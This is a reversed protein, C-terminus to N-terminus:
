KATKFSKSMRYIVMSLRPKVHFDWEKGYGLDLITNIRRQDWVIVQLCRVTFGGTFLFSYHDM